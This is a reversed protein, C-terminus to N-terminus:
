RRGPGDLLAFLKRARAPDGREDELTAELEVLLEVAVGIPGSIPRKGREMERLATAGNGALRLREALQELSLELAERAAKLEDPTM